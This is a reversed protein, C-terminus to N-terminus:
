RTICTRHWSWTNQSGTFVRHGWTLRDTGIQWTDRTCRVRTLGVTAAAKWM